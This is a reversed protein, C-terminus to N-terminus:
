IEAGAAGVGGEVIGVEDEALGVRLKDEAGWFEAPNVEVAGAVFAVVAEIQALREVGSISLDGVAGHDVFFRAGLVDDRHHEGEGAMEGNGKIMLPCIVGPEPGRDTGVRAQKQIM